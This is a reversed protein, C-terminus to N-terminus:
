ASYYYPLFRVPIGKLYSPSLNQWIFGLGTVMVDLQLFHELSTKSSLSVPCGRFILHFDLAPYGLISEFLFPGWLSVYKLAQGNPLPM